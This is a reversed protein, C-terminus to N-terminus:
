LGLFQLQKVPHLISKKLNIVFGMNVSIDIGVSIDTYGGSNYNGILHEGEAMLLMDGLYVNILINTRRSLAIPIKPLKTFVKPTPGLGFCLCLFVYINGSWKFREHESSQKSLPIAFYPDKLDLNFLFNNQELLFILCHLGKMKFHEYAIFANLKKLNIVLCNGRDNKRVHFINSLFEEQATEAKQIVGKELLESIEQEM